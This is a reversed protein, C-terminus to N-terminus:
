EKLDGKEMLIKSFMEGLGYTSIQIATQQTQWGWRIATREFVKSFLNDTEM